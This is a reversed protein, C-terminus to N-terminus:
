VMACQMISTIARSARRPPSMPPTQAHSRSLTPSCPAHQRSNNFVMDLCMTLSPTRKTGTCTTNSKEAYRCVGWRQCVDGACVSHGSQRHGHHLRRRHRKRCPYMSCFPVNNLCRSPCVSSGRRSTVPMHRVTVHAAPRTIARSARRLRPTRQTQAHSRSLMPWCPAPQRLSPPPPRIEDVISIPHWIISVYVHESRWLELAYECRRMSRQQCIDRTRV